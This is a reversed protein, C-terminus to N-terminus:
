NVGHPGQSLYDWSYDYSYDNPVCTSTCDRYPCDEGNNGGAGDRPAALAMSGVSLAVVAALTAALGFLRLTKKL